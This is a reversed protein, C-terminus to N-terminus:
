QGGHVNILLEILARISEVRRVVDKGSAYMKSLTEAINKVIDDSFNAHIYYTGKKLLIILVKDNKDWCFTKKYKIRTPEEVAKMQKKKSVNFAIVSQGKYVDVTICNTTDEM